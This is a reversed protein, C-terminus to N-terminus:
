VEIVWLRDARIALGMGEGPRGRVVVANGPVIEALDADFRSYVFRSIRIYVDEQEIGADYCKITASRTLDPRKVGKMEPNGAAREDEALDRYELKRVLGCFVVTGGTGSGARLSRSDCDPVPVPLRGYRAAKTVAAVVEAARDLGFPDKATAFGELTAVTVPGVGPTRGLSKWTDFPERGREALIADATREAIGPVQEFGARIRSPGDLEWNAGSRAFHPPSIQIGHAVADKLLRLTADAGGAKRLSATFFADPHHQKMYQCWVALKAYAVAHAVVFAYAAADVMRAWIHLAQERTIGSSIMAGSAFQDFLANFQAKGLKKSIIKRLKSADEWSFAGVETVVRLIQEQYVIQGRTPLTIEALPTLASVGGLKAIKKGAAVYAAAGGGLLPGPRSLACLDSLEMFTQPQVERTLNRTARGEFQFIGVVDGRRFAEMVAPDEDPVDYLDTLALGALECARGLMGMTTLGLADAKLCGLAEADWKDISLVELDREKAGSGSKQRYLACLNTLPETSVVLGAAHVSSGRLNGELRMAMRLEPYEDFVAAAAPMAEATDELSHFQRADGDTRELLCAKIIETKARPIRYVRAVDDLSNKGRFRVWNSVNGVHGEGYKGVLYQRVEDRRDDAFDLDIDPADARSPDLFRELMMQPYAIPDLETIRLLYAVLSAGVSGRGPGVAIGNNKAWRVMDSTFLFFDCFDKSEILALERLVREKYASPLRGARQAREPIRRFKWGENCWARLLSSSDVPM